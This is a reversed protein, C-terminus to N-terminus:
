VDKRNLLEIGAETANTLGDPNTSLYGLLHLDELQAKTTHKGAAWRRMIAQIYELQTTMTDKDLSQLLRALADITPKDRRSIEYQEFLRLVELRYDDLTM